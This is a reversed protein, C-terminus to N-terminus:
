NTDAQLEIEQGDVKVIVRRGYEVVSYGGSYDIGANDMMREVSAVEEETLGNGIDGEPTIATEGYNEMHSGVEEFEPKDKSLRSVVIGVGAIVALAIVGIIIKKKMELDGM